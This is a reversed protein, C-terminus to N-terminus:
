FTVGNLKRRRIKYYNALYLTLDCKHTKCTNCIYFNYRFINLNNYNEACEICLYM